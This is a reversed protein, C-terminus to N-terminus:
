KFIATKAKQFREVLIPDRTARVLYWNRIISEAQATRSISKISPDNIALSLREVQLAMRIAKDEAPSEIGALWELNVCWRHLQASDISSIAKGDCAKQFRKTISQETPIHSITALTNWHNKAEDVSLEGREVQECIAAKQALLDIQLVQQNVQLNQHREEVAHKANQFRKEISALAKKPVQGISLWLQDAKKLEVLLQVPQSDTALTELKECLATKEVLNTQLQQEQEDRAQNRRNFVADCTERFQKWLQNEEKRGSPVTIQWQKQLKKVENIAQQLDEKELMAKVQEVLTQRQQFNNKREQNLHNEVAAMTSEFRTNVTKKLKRDTPGTAFWAKQLEKVQRYVDKWDLQRNKWDTEQLLADLQKCVTEKAAMNQKREDAKAAFYAQCPEYVKRCAANFREWLGHDSNGDNLKKWTTQAERVRRALEEPDAKIGILAEMQECLIQREQHNGWRQWGRLENIKSTCVHLRSEFAARKNKPLDGLQKLLTHAKEEISIAKQLEGNELTQELTELLKKIEQQHEKQQAQQQQLREQLQELLSHFNEELTELTATPNEPQEIAKRQEQLKELADKRIFTEKLLREAKHIVKTLATAISQYHLLTKLHRRIAKHKESFAETLRHEETEPLHGAAKFNDLLQQAKEELSQSQEASIEELKEVEQWLTNLDHLFNQKERRLEAHIQLANRYEDRATQARQTLDTFHAVTGKDSIQQQEANFGAVEESLKQWTEQLKNFETDHEWDGIKILWDLRKCLEERDAVIQLPREQIKNWADLKEKALRYIRKDRSRSGKAVQAILDIQEIKEIAWLRIHADRDNQAVEAFLAENNLKQLAAQRLASEKANLAFYTLMETDQLSEVWQLRQELPPSQDKQQGTLLQQFRDAAAQRVDPHFDADQSMEQLLQVDALKQAALCRLGLDPDERAVSQLIDVETAALAELAQKRVNLDPHQWKPKFFQKLM